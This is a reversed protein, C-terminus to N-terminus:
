YVLILCFTSSVTNKHYLLSHSVSGIPPINCM